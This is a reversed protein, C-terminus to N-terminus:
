RCGATHAGQWPRHPRVRCYFHVNEELKETAENDYFSRIYYEDCAIEYNEFDTAFSEQYAIADYVLETVYQCLTSSCM